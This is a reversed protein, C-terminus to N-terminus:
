KYKMEFIKIKYDFGNDESDFIKNLNEYKDYNDFIQKLIIPNDIEEDIIVHKVGNKKMNLFFDEVNSYNVIKVKLSPNYHSSTVPFEKLELLQAPDLYSFIPTNVYLVTDTKKNIIDALKLFEQQRGVDVNKYNLFLVSSFVVIIIIMMIGIKKYKIKEFYKMCSFTGFICLIPLIPFLYRSDLAPVTYAYLSPLLLFFGPIILLSKQTNNKKLFLIIGLPVFIGLYPIMLRGFFGTLIYVSEVIKSFIQNPNNQTQELFSSSSIVIRGVLYDNGSSEIRQISFPLLILISILLFIICQLISTKTIRFRLFFVLCLALILFLGEARVVSALSVVVFASCIIYKNKQVFLALVTVILLIFLPDTTGILSNQIIRPEFIFLVTSILAFSSSVFKKALFYLPVITSTSFIITLFSQFNMYDLFNKSDLFKFFISLLLPWGNNPLSFTTPLEGTLSVDMAYKFYSLNDSSFILENQFFVLRIFIASIGILLLSLFPFKSLVEFYDGFKIIDEKYKHNL